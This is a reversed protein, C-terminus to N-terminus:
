RRQQSRVCTRRTAEVAPSTHRKPKPPISSWSGDKRATSACEPLPKTNRVVENIDNATAVWGVDDVSSLGEAGSFREEVWKMLGSTCIAILIPSVPSGQPIGAEVPHREMVNGEIVMEVMRGTLFSAAWRILHGDMGNGRMTHILRGRGISPFAAKIDMLLVGAILGQRWAAQARDVMIAAADIESRRKRSGYQGGSNLGRREAEEALVEGVVKEVVNRLCSLLLISRYSKQKTYDDNEPKRIVGRSARKWVARHRGTRVVARELEM